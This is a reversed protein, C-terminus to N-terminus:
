GRAAGVALDGLCVPTRDGLPYALDMGLRRHWLLHLLYARAVAPAATQGALETFTRPGDTVANLLGEVLGLRDSLPRRQASLTDLTSLAHPKWGTVLVYRWGLMATVEATAAFAIRDEGRVRRAPRVDILWWGHRTYALFDPTHDRWDGDACFRLRMPQSLVDVVDAAFDLALLLWAEELSEFAHHRGTSVLYQLGPRHRQGRGWAFRRIPECGTVPM